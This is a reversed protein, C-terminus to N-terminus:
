ILGINIELSDFNHSFNDKKHKLNNFKSTNLCQYVQALANIIPNLHSQDNTIIVQLVMNKVVILLIKHAIDLHSMLKYTEKNFTRTAPICHIARSGMVNGRLIKISQPFKM